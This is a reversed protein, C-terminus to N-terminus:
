ASGTNFTGLVVARDIYLEALMTTNRGIRRLLTLLFQIHPIGVAGVVEDLLFADVLMM